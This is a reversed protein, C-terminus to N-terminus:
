RSPVTHCSGHPMPLQTFVTIPPGTIELPTVILRWTADQDGKRSQWHGSGGTRVALVVHGTVAASEWERKRGERGEVRKEKKTLEGTVLEGNRPKQIFFNTLTIRQKKIVFQDNPELNLDKPTPRDGNRLTAQGKTPMWCSSPSLLQPM